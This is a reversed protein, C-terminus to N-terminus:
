KIQQEEAREAWVNIVISIIYTITLLTEKGYQTKISVFDKATYLVNGVYESGDVTGITLKKGVNDDLIRKINCYEHM